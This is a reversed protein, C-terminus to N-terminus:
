YFCTHFCSIDYPKIMIINKIEEPLRQWAKYAIYSFRKKGAATRAKTKHKKFGEVVECLSIHARKMACKSVIGQLHRERRVDLNELGLDDLLPAAHTNRPKHKLIRAAMKQIVDLKKLHTKSARFFVSSCREMHSRVLSNFMMPLMSEPLYKAAKRMVGLLGKYKLVVADIHESFTLHRDITFELLTVKFM